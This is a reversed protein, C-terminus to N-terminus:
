RHQQLSKLCVLPLFVMKFFRGCADKYGASKMVGHVLLRLPIMCCSMVLALVAVIDPAEGQRELELIEDRVSGHLQCFFPDQWEAKSLGDRRRLVHEAKKVNSPIGSLDALITRIANSSSRM